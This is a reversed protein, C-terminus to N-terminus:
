EVYPLFWIHGVIVQANINNQAIVKNYYNKIKAIRSFHQAKNNPDNSVGLEMM